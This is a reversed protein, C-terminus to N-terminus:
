LELGKRLKQLARYQLVRVNAETLDLEKAIHRVNKGQIFRLEVVRRMDYPLTAIAVRLRDKTLSQEALEDLTPQEQGREDFFTDEVDVDKQKRWYDILTTRAIRFIWAKASGGVFSARTRWAKEFVHSTLDEALMEDKTRWFMFRFILPQNVEYIKGFEEHSNGEDRYPLSKRPM